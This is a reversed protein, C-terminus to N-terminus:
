RKCKEKDFFPVGHGKPYIVWLIQILLCRWLYCQQQNKWLCYHSTFHWLSYFAVGGADDKHSDVDVPWGQRVLDSIKHFQKGFVSIAAEFVAGEHPNWKDIREM